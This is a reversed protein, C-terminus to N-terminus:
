IIISMWVSLFRTEVVDVGWVMLRDDSRVVVAVLWDRDVRLNLCCGVPIIDARSAQRGLLFHTISQVVHSLLLTLNSVFYLTSKALVKAIM